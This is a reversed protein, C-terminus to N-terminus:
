KKNIKEQLVNNFAHIFKELSIKEKRLINGAENAVVGVCTLAGKTSEEIYGDSFYIKQM